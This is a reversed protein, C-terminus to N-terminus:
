SSLIPWMRTRWTIRCNISRGGQPTPDNKADFTFQPKETNNGIVYKSGSKDHLLFLYPESTKILCNYAQDLGEITFPIEIDFFIGAASKSETVNIGATESIHDIESLTDGLYDDLDITEPQYFVPLDVYLMRICEIKKIGPINM